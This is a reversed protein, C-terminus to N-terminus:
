GLNIIMNINANGTMGIKAALVLTRKFERPNRGFLSLPAVMLPAQVANVITLTESPATLYV